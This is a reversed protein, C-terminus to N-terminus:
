QTSIKSLANYARYINIIWNSEPKNNTYISVTEIDNWGYKGSIRIIGMYSLGQAMRLRYIRSWGNDRAHKPPIRTSLALAKNPNEVPYAVFVHIGRGTRQVLYPQGPFMRRIRNIISEVDERSDIDAMPMYFRKGDAMTMNTIGIAPTSGPQRGLMTARRPPRYVVLMACWDYNCSSAFEYYHLRPLPQGDEYILVLEVPVM